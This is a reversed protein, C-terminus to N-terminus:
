LIPVSGRAATRALPRRLIARPMHPCSERNKQSIRAFSWQPFRFTLGAVTNHWRGFYHDTELVIGQEGALRRTTHSKGCAPLGRMLYVQKASSQM